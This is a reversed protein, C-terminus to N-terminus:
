SATAPDADFGFTDRTLSTLHNLDGALLAELTWGESSGSQVSGRGAASDVDM